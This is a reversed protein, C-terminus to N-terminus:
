KLVAKVTKKAIEIEERTVAEDFDCFSVDDVNKGTLFAYWLLGIAYRGIGLSAHFTDRHVKKIGNETLKEMLMGSPIVLDASVDEAAKEYASKIDSFMDERTKYGLEETLRQSGEEYAWTQHIAVKAKPCLSRIEAVIENLYPQYTNYDISFHSAQQITVVEWDCALLAERITVFFYSMHGNVGLMYRKEDGKLNRFHYCLPCGGIYLNYTNVTEKASRAIQHIYRQADESFSNGISLINM